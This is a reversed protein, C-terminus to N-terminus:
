LESFPSFLITYSLSLSVSLCLILSHSLSLSLFINNTRELSIMGENLISFSLFHSFYKFFTFHSIYIYIYKSFTFHLYDTLLNNYIHMQIHYNTSFLYSLIINKKLFLNKQLRHCALLKFPSITSIYFTFSM